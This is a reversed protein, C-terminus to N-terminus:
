RLILITGPPYLPPLAGIYPPYEREAGTWGAYGLDVGSSRRYARFRAFDPDSADTLNVFQPAQVRVVTGTPMEAGSPAFAAAVAQATAEDFVFTEGIELGDVLCYEDLETVNGGVFAETRLANGRFFSGTKFSTPANDQLHGGDPIMEVLNTSGAETLLLLNDFIEATWRSGRYDLSTARVLERYGVVTNHHIRNAGSGMGERAKLLVAWAPSAPDNVFRNYSVEVTKPGEYGANLVGQGGNAKADVVINSVFHLQVSTSPVIEQCNTFVNGVIRTDGSSAILSYKRWVSGDGMRCSDFRCGSVLLGTAADRGARIIATGHGSGAYGSGRKQYFECGLLSLSEAGNWVLSSAGYNQRGLSQSDWEFRIGEITVNDAENSVIHVNGSHGSTRWDYTFDSAVVVKAPGEGGFARVSLGGSSAPIAMADSGTEVAYVRNTGGRVWVTSGPGAAALGEPITKFATEPTAGDGSAAAASDVYVDLSRVHVVSPLEQTVTKGTGADTLRVLPRFEGRAAYTWATTTEPGSRDYAGDGDFDWEVTVAGANGAYEVAFVATAPAMYYEADSSFAEVQFYEGPAGPVDIPEVAGVYTAPYSYAVNGITGDAGRAVTRVWPYRSANLRYFNTSSVDTTDLFEPPLGLEKNDSVALGPEYDAFKAPATGSLFDRALWANGAFFSGAKFSSKRRELSTANECVVSGTGSAIVLNDFIWPTWDADNVNEVQVFSSCGVVTNHHFRPQGYYGQSQKLFVGVDSCVFVNYAIEGHELERYGDGASRIPRTCNVVRNSVFYGGGSYQYATFFGSCSDFVNGVIRANSAVKIPRFSSAGVHDFLCNRVVLRAGKRDRDNNSSDAFLVGGDKWNQGTTGTQVFACGDVVCDNAAFSLLKGSEGLSNGAANKNGAYSYTFKLNRVTFGDAGVPARLVVPNNQALCLDADLAVVPRDSPDAAEIALNTVSVTAFDAASAIAYTGPAVRITTPDGSLLNAADVADKITAFPAAQSGDGGAAAAADVYLDAAQAVFGASLLALPLISRKM